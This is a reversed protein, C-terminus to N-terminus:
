EAGGGAGVITLILLALSSLAPMGRGASPRAITHWAAITYRTRAWANRRSPWVLGTKPPHNASPHM